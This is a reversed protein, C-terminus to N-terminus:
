FDESAAGPIEPSVEAVKISLGGHGPCPQSKQTNEQPEGPHTGYAGGMGFGCRLGENEGIRM